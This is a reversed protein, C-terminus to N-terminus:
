ESDVYKKCKERLVAMIKVVRVHSIGLKKGIDRTTLGAAYLLLMEKERQTFGNNHISEALLKNHLDEFTHRSREDQLWATEKLSMDQDNILAEISIERFIGKIKRLHNQLYFYCGQLVYSDTKDTLRGAKFDQWLHVLAEQYLDEDNFFTFRGNLRHTIGRLKPSIRKVIEQFYMDPM